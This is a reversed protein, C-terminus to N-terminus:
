WINMFLTSSSQGALQRDLKEKTLIRNAMEGAQRVDEIPFLVLHLRSPLTNQFSKFSATEWLRLTNSGTQYM